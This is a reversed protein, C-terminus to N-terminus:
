PLNLSEKTILSLKLRWPYIILFNKLAFKFKRQNDAVIKIELPLNNFFIKLAFKFKRQNDAVIKIEL